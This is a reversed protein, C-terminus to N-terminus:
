NSDDLWKGEDHRFSSGIPLNRSSNMISMTHKLRNVGKIHHKNVIFAQHIKIFGEGLEGAFTSLAMHKYKMIDKDKKFKIYIQRNKYEVYSIDSVYVKQGHGKFTLTIQPKEVKELNVYNVLVKKFIGDLEADKFPKIIFYCWLVERYAEMERAAMGSIFVIPTFEYQKLARIERALILGNYDLLNIDMFFVSVKHNKAIELAKAAYGTCMAKIDPNIQKAKNALHTQIQIEDEIILVLGM